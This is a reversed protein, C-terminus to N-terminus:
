VATYGGDALLDAGTIFAAGDSVLFLAAEAIEEPRGIRGIPHRPVLRENVAAESGYRRTLRSTMVSGPSLSVARIGQSAYDVAISRTLGLLAAKSTSYAGSGPNTVYGLQSAINLVVAAGAARKLHPIAARAMIFAGTVNVDLMRRWEDVPVEEIPRLPAIAAANNVLIHLGGFHAVTRQVAAEASSEDAVDCAIALSREPANSKHVCAQVGAEEKDLWAVHAGAALLRNAIARGLDGAAGTVIATRGALSAHPASPVSNSSM